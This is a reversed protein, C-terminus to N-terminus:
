SGRRKEREVLEERLILKEPPAQIGIKVEMGRRVSIIRVLVDDGIHVAEGMKRTLVLM